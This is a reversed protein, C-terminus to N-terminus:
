SITDYIHPLPPAPEDSWTIAALVESRAKELKGIDNAHVVGLTDGIKYSDGIACPLVFGVAYDLRDSKVLRGAGLHVAAWGIAGTDLAAIAGNRPALIPEIFKAKPLLRPDDIQGVDGGQAVVMARLKQFARGNDRVKQALEKAEALTDAKGALLLMHAAVELSHEWFRAPGGGQLTEIAEKVELANGIADGLPQNMDSILAVTQRGADNGINVMIQALERADELTTMFAGSGMKVDLVIADAGAALKKSMISAAILPTSAVTGTVDRLAYLKGDAPALKATQGALVLGIDALQRKFQEISM